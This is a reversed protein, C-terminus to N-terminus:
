ITNTYRSHDWMMRRANVNSIKFAPNHPYFKPPTDVNLKKCWFHVVMNRIFKMTVYIEFVSNNLCNRRHGNNNCLLWQSSFPKIFSFFPSSNTGNTGSTRRHEIQKLASVAQHRDINGKIHLIAIIHEKCMDTYEKALESIAYIIEQLNELKIIEALKELLPNLWTEQSGKNSFFSKIHISNGVMQAAVTRLQIPNEFRVPKEMLRAIYELVVQFHIKGIVVQFCPKCLPKLTTVYSKVYQMIDPFNQKRNKGHHLKRFCSKLKKFMDQVLADCLLTELNQLVLGLNEKLRGELNLDKNDLLSRFSQNCNVNAITIARFSNQKKKKQTYEVVLSQYRILFKQLEQGLHSAIKLSIEQSIEAAKQISDHYIQAVDMQLKSQYYRGVKAPEKGNKWRKEQLNLSNELFTELTNAEWNIFNRELKRIIRPPLLSELKSEDIHGQIAPDRLITQPYLNHIWCLLFYTDEETLEYETISGLESMFNKHYYQTYLNCANFEATYHPSLNKVVHILDNKFTKGLNCFKQSLCSSSRNTPIRHAKSIQQSVSEEICKMWKEKWKRPQRQNQGTIDDHKLIKADEKEQKQIAKIAEILSDGPIQVISDLIVQCMEKELSEYLSDIDKTKSHLPVNDSVTNEIVILEKVAQYFRKQQILMQISEAEPINARASTFFNQLWKLGGRKKVGSSSPDNIDKPTNGLQESKKQGKDKM